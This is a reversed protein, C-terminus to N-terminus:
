TIALSKASWMASLAVGGGGGGGGGSVRFDPAGLNKIRSPEQLIDAKVGFEKSAAKLMNEIPTRYSLETTDGGATIEAIGTTYTKIWNM